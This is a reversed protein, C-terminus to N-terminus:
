GQRRKRKRREGRQRAPNADAAAEADGDDRGGGELQQAARQGPTPWPMAEGITWAPPNGRPRLVGIQLGLYLIWLLTFQFFTPIVSAAGLAVGLSGWLRTLLGVKMAQYCTYAMAVAFGLTGAFGLGAALGSLSQNSIADQAVSNAHSGSGTAHKAKMVSVFDPAANHLVIGTVIAYGALFLPAAIVLGILQGRLTASRAQAARFLYVFPAALLASGIGRIVYALIVVGSHKDVDRLLEANGSGGFQKVLLVIQVGFLVVALLTILAVPTGWRRERELIENREVDTAAPPARETM